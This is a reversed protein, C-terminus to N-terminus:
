NELSKIEILIKNENNWNKRAWKESILKDDTYALGNLADYIAKELNDLDPTQTHNQFQILDKRSKPIEFYFQIDVCCAVNIPECNGYKILFANKIEKEFDLTRKPTYFHGTKTGRPRGKPIPKTMIEINFKKM